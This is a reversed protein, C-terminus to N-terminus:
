TLALFTCFSLYTLTVANRHPLIYTLTPYFLNPYTLYTLSPYFLNPYRTAVICPFLLTHISTLVSYWLSYM